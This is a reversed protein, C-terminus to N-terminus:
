SGDTVDLLELAPECAAAAGRIKVSWDAGVHNFFDPRKAASGWDIGLYQHPM